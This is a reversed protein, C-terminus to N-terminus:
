DAASKSRFILPLVGRRRWRQDSNVSLQLSIVVKAAFTAAACGKEAAAFGVIAVFVSKENTTNAAAQRAAKRLREEKM